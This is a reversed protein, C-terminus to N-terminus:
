TLFSPKGPDDDYISLFTYVQPVTNKPVTKTLLYTRLARKAAEEMSEERIGM